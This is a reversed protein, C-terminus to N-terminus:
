NYSHEIKNKNETKDKQVIFLAQLLINVWAFFMGIVQYYHYNHVSFSFSVFVNLVKRSTSLYAPINQTMRTFARYILLQGIFFLM